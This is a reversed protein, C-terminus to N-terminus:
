LNFCKGTKNKENNKRTMGWSCFAIDSLILGRERAWGASWRDPRSARALLGTIASRTALACAVLIWRVGELSREVDLAGPLPGPRVREWKWWALYGKGRCSATVHAASNKQTKPKYHWVSLLEIARAWSGSISAVRSKNQKKKTKNFRCQPIM